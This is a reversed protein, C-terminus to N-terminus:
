PATIFSTIENPTITMKIRTSEMVFKILMDIPLEKTRKFSTPMRLTIPPTFRCNTACNKISDMTRETTEPISENPTYWSSWWDKLVKNFVVNGDIVPNLGIKQIHITAPM